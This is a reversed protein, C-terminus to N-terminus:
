FNFKQKTELGVMVKLQTEFLTKTQWDKDNKRTIIKAQASINEGEVVFIKGGVKLLHFYRGTIEPVACSIIVIDFFDPTNIKHSADAIMFLVNKIDLEALKDQASQSLDEDIEITTVSHALKALVATLYGSGTGIELVKDTPKIDMADLIRGEIKPSLMSAKDTLPIDMDTFALEKFEDPVFLTRPIDMLAQNANENLGGWARVQEKIVNEQAIATNM